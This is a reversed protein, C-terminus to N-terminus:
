ALVAEKSFREEEFRELAAVAPPADGTSGLVDGGLVRAYFDARSAADYRYWYSGWGYDREFRSRILGAISRPHWGKRWLEVLLARMRSPKLLAPNPRKLTLGVDPSLSSLDLRDYTRPWEAPDDHWGLYFFDHFSRLRSQRYDAVWRLVGQPSFRPIDMPGETALEVAEDPNLHARVLTSWSRARRPVCIAVPSRTSLGFLRAKQHSSFAARSYRLDLPDAYASLDLCVFAGGRRPPLDALAVPVESRDRVQEIVSHALYELLRGIAEHARGMRLISPRNPLSRYKGALPQGINGMAVLAEHASTGAPVLGVVHYGRGTMLTLPRLGYSRLFGLTARYTPELAQFCIGPDRYAEARDDHNVYDIDLLVLSGRDDGLCRTVDAGEELLKGLERSSLPVPSGDEQALGRVGGFGALGWSTLGERDDGCYELIRARVAASRYYSRVWKWDSLGTAM